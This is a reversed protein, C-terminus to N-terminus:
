FRAQLKVKTTGELVTIIELPTKASLNMAEGESMDELEVNGVFPAANFADMADAAMSHEPQALEEDQSCGLQFMMALVIGILVFFRRM